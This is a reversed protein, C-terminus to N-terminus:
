GAIGVLPSPGNGRRELERHRTSVQWGQEALAKALREAVAVSRHQGGTCGLGVSLYTKGEDIYAPVLSVLMDELKNFFDAFRPDSAVYAAVSPDRGDLVRLSEEWHPNALFRTDFIMDVGRPLGRKYSFSEVSLVLMGEGDRAFRREIEAKLDHPTMDSTDILHDARARIPNLLEMERGIGIQPTESPALPHRRRTESYRRLLVDPRCDLFLLEADIASDTEVDELVALMADVSFDRNRVDIGLALPPMSTPGDFVRSLLSLPMNDITEFGLDELARTATARGAGSAGTVLVARTQAASVVRETM